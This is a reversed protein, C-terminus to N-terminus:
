RNIAAIIDKPVIDGVFRGWIGGQGYNGATFVVVLDKEPVVVLLQGGNGSALYARYAREGDHLDGLHWAYGDRGEVYVNQFQERTLGTTSPTVDIQPATSLRVWEPTAIRHNKWIGGDLYAQGVKLLDRPRMYAGGGLYGENTPMLNWYYPGFQLPRAVTRDFLEPLWTHTATTLAAGALSMGGSCYAYRVGADHVVPLGLTYAWWNPQETQSQMKGEGGPSDDSNDDCALGTTHTMAHGLTIKAKRPDPNPYKDIGGLLPYLPTDVNLPVGTRMVAGLIVAAFTKGASRLDHFDTRDFGYFYEDLVLKGRHAILMSHMLVPRRISPDGEGIRQVLAGLRSEDMGTESARATSWGDGTAPPKRYVYKSGPPRPFFATAEADGRKTLEIVRNVDPWTMQLREPEHLLKAEMRIDGQNGRRKATFVVADGDRTVELQTIPGTVNAEPNRFAALLKGDEGPFVRLYLTFRDDLPAVTGRWVGTKVRRLRLPSAMPQILFGAPQIWYGDIADGALTGRFEGRNEPFAFRVSKGSVAFSAASGEIAARWEKAGRTVTLEGHLMPTLNTQYSWIGNLAEASDMALAFLLAAIM